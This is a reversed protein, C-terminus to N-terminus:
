KWKEMKSDKTCAQQGWALDGYSQLTAAAACAMVDVDWTSSSPPGILPRGASDIGKKPLMEPLRVSYSNEESLQGSSVWM